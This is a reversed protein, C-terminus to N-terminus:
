FFVGPDVTAARPLPHEPIIAGSCCWLRISQSPSGTGASGLVTKKWKFSSQLIYCRARARHEVASISMWSVDLDVSLPFAFSRAESPVASTAPPSQFNYIAGELDETRPGRTRTGTNQAVRPHRFRHPVGRESETLRASAVSRQLCRTRHISLNISLYYM